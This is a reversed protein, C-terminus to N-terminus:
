VGQEMMENNWNTQEATSKKKRRPPCLSNELKGCGLSFKLRKNKNLKKFCRARLKLPNPLPNEPSGGYSDCNASM